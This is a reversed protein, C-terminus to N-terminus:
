NLGPIHLINVAILRFIFLAFISVLLGTIASTVTERAGQVKKEDGSSTAMLIFGYVMLLFAIAGAIGFIFQLFWAAFKNMDMPICGLATDIGKEGNITCTPDEAEPPGFEGSKTCGCYSGRLSCTAVPTSVSCNNSLIVGSGNCTCTNDSQGSESRLKCICGAPGQPNGNRGGTCVYYENNNCNDKELFVDGTGDVLRCTCSGAIAPKTLKLFFFGVMWFLWVLKTKKYM